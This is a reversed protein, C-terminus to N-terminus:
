LKTLFVVRKTLLLSHNITDFAKSLDMFIIAVKEGNELQQKWNEILHANHNKRFGYLYRSFMKRMFIEIQKYLIREFVKSSHSLISVPRYIEKNLSDEKKFIPTIDVLEFDDPFVGEKPFNNILIKLESLYTNISNKADQSSYWRKQYSKKPHLNLIEKKVDLVSISNLKLSSQSHINALKIRQIIEHNQFIVTISELNAKSDTKTPKLKLHITINTFYNNM